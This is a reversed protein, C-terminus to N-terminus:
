WVAQEPAVIEKLRGQVERGSFLYLKVLKEKLTM